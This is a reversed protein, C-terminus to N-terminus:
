PLVSFLKKMVPLKVSMGKSIMPRQQIMKGGRHQSRASLVPIGLVPQNSCSGDRPNLANSNWHFWPEKLSFLPSPQYHPEMPVSIRAVRLKIESRPYWMVQFSTLIASGWVKGLVVSDSGFRCKLLIRLHDTSVNFNPLHQDLLGNSSLNFQYQLFLTSFPQHCWRSEQENLVM